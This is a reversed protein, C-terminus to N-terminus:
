LRAQFKKRAYSAYIAILPVPNFWRDPRFSLQIPFIWYGWANEEFQTFPRCNHKSTYIKYCSRHYFVKVNPSLLGDVSSIEGTIMEFINDRRVNMCTAEIFSNKSISRMCILNELSPRQCFICKDWMIEPRRRKPSSPELKLLSGFSAM